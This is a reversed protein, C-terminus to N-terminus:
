CNDDDDRIPRFMGYYTIRKLRKILSGLNVNSDVDTAETLMFNLDGVMINVLRENVDERRRRKRNVEEAGRLM